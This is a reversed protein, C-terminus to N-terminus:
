PRPEVVVVPLVRTEPVLDLGATERLAARVAANQAADPRECHVTAPDMLLQMEYTGEVATEDIVPMELCRELAQAVEHLTLGRVSIVGDTSSSRRSAASATLRIGGESQRLLLVDVPQEADRITVGLARGIEEFAYARFAEEPVDPAALDIIASRETLSDPGVVRMPDPRVGGPSEPGPGLWSNQLMMWLPGTWRAQRMTPEVPRGYGSRDGPWEGPVLWRVRAVAETPLARSPRPRSRVTAMVSDMLSRAARDPRALPLGALLSDITAVTVDTPHVIAALRGDRGILATQPIGTVGFAAAASSDADLGVWGRIARRVLFPAVVDAPEDTVSIFRVPRGAVSDAVANLHPISAVCPACWTAWFDLM